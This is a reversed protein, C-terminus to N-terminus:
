CTIFKSIYYKTAINAMNQSGNVSRDLNIELRWGMHGVDKLQICGYRGSLV